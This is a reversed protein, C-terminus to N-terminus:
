FSLVVVCGFIFTASTSDQDRSAQVAAQSDVKRSKKKDQTDPLRIMKGQISKATDHEKTLEDRM